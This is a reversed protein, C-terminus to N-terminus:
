HRRIVLTSRTMKKLDETFDTESFERIGDYMGAIGALMRQLWFSECVGASVKAGPRNYSYFPLTLRRLVVACTVVV